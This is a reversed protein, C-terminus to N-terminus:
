FMLFTKHYTFNLYEHLQLYLSRRSVQFVDSWFYIFRFCLSMTQGGKKEYGGRLLSFEGRKILNVYWSLHLDLEKKFVINSKHPFYTDVDHAVRCPNIKFGSWEGRVTTSDLWLCICLKLPVQAWWALDVDFQLSLAWNYFFFFFFDRPLSLPWRSLLECKIDHGSSFALRTTGESHATKGWVCRSLLLMPDHLPTGLKVLYPPCDKWIVKGM